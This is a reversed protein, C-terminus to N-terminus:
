YDRGKLNANLFKSALRTEEVRENIIFILTEAEFAMKGPQSIQNLGDRSQM